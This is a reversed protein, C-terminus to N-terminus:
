LTLGALFDITRREQRLYEYVADNIMVSCTMGAFAPIWPERPFGPDLIQSPERSKDPRERSAPDPGAHRFLSNVSLEENNQLLNGDMETKLLVCM